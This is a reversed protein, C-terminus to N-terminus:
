HFGLDISLDRWNPNLAEVLEDKWARRWRKLKKERVFADKIDSFIEYYVLNHCRYQCTFSNKDIDNKHEWARKLLNNTVGIYLTNKNNSAMFYIYYQMYAGGKDDRAQGPIKM